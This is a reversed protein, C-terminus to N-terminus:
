NSVGNRDLIVTFILTVPSASAINFLSNHMKGAMFELLKAIYNIPSLTYNFQCM